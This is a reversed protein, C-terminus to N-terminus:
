AADTTRWRHVADSLVTALVAMWVVSGVLGLVVAWHFRIALPSLLVLPLGLLALPVSLLGGLWAPGIGALAVVAWLFALSVFGPVRRSLRRRTAVRTSVPVVGARGRHSAAWRVGIRVRRRGIRRDFRRNRRRATRALAGDVTPSQGDHPQSQRVM